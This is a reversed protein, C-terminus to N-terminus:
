QVEFPLARLEKLLAAEQEVTWEESRTERRSFGSPVGQAKRNWAKLGAGINTGRARCNCRRLLVEIVQNVRVQAAQAFRTHHLCM